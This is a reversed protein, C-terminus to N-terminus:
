EDPFRRLLLRNYIGLTVIISSVDRGFSGIQGSDAPIKRLTKGSLRSLLDRLEGLLEKVQRPIAVTNSAM